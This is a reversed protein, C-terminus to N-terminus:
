NAGDDFFRRRTEDRLDALDLLLLFDTTKFYRDQAPPGCVRAGYRLYLRFLPPLAVEASDVASPDADCAWGDRPEVHVHPHLYGSREFYRWAALAAAPDLTPLSCCGFLYRTGTQSLYRALGKWLLLFVVGNRHPRAICTRGVEVADDLVQAPIRSLDFEGDSYFGRHRVAMGSTQMRYTGVVSAEPNDVVMLHHCVPDFEDLDRQTAFSSGLGEGLEVNFVDFRLRLVADLHERSTAFSAAYRHQAVPRPPLLAPFVPYPVHAPLIHELPVM